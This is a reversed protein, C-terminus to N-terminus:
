DSASHADGLLHGGQMLPQVSGMLACGGAVGRTGERSQAGFAKGARILPAALVDWFTNLPTLLGPAGGELATVVSAQWMGSRGPVPHLAQLDTRLGQAGELIDPWWAQGSSPPLPSAPTRPPGAARLSGCLYPTLINWIYAPTRGVVVAHFPLEVNETHLTQVSLFKVKVAEPCQVPKGRGM